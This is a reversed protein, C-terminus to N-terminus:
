DLCHNVAQIINEEQADWTYYRKFKQYACKTIKERRNPDRILEVCAKSFEVPSDALLAEKGNQIQYGYAGFNTSIVPCRRAFGEAIKIRTGGGNRIPVVMASWSSIENSVDSLWGLQDIGDGQVLDGKNSYKGVIRLRASPVSRKVLPWVDKIFWKIGSRNPAYDLSGIFGLRPEVGDARQATFGVIPEFGNRVVYVGQSKGFLAKDRESCVCLVSFRKTFLRERRRWVISMRYDLIRRIISTGISAQTAYVQSALDDVDLISHNLTFLGLTDPVRVTHFWVLDYERSLEVFLNKHEPAVTLKRIAMFGPDIEKKIRSKLDLRFSRVPIEARVNLQLGTSDLYKNEPPEAGLFVMSVDAFRELIKLVKSVRIRAGYAPGRPDHTTVYLIRPRIQM